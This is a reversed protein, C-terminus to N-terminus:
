LLGKEEAYRRVEVRNDLQLKKYVNRLHTKVTGETIHLEAAIQKNRLGQAVRRVLEIERPTLVVAAEEGGAQRRFMTELAGRMSRTEVWYGGAHVKRLCQLLLRPAMEKLLVGHVGLRMAEVAEGESLEATLIVTRTPLGLRSVEALVTLGSMGPMRVDVVLLDPAHQRVARVAEEGSVCREVVEFEGALRLLQALGDLFLPHDDAIVVRIAM